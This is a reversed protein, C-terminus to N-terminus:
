SFSYGVNVHMGQTLAHAPHTSEAFFSSPRVSPETTGAHALAATISHLCAACHPIGKQRMVRAGPQVHGVRLLNGAM